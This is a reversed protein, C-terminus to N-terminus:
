KTFQIRNRTVARVEYIIERYDKIHISSQEESQQHIFNCRKGYTCYTKKDFAYCIRTKYSMQNETNCRLEHTGHAFQCKSGYQCNGFEMFNRCLSSKIKSNTKMGMKVNM